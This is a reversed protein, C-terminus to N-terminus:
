DAKYIFLFLTYVTYGIILLEEMNHLYSKKLLFKM